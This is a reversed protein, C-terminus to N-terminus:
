VMWGDSALQGFNLRLRRNGADGVVSVLQGTRQCLQQGGAGRLGFGLQHSAAGVDAQPHGLHVLTKVGHDVDGAHGFQPANFLAAAVQHNASGGSQM